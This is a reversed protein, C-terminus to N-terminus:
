HEAIGNMGAEQYEEGNFSYVSNEVPVIKGDEDEMTGTRTVQLDPYDPNAGSKALSISGEFTWCPPMFDDKAEDDCVGSNDGGTQLYGLQSWQNNRYAFISKGSNTYGQGSYGIDLLFAINGKSLTLIQAKEVEPADGWSGFAGIEAQKSALEWKGNVQKYVVASIVPADAHSGYIEHTDPDVMQNKIFVVHYEQEGDNFSQEFWVSALTNNDPKVQGNSTTISFLATLAQNGDPTEMAKPPIPATINAIAKAQGNTETRFKHYFYAGAGIVTAFAIISLIIASIRPSSRPM